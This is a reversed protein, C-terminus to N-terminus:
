TRKNEPTDTSRSIRNNDQIPYMSVLIGWTRYKSSHTSNTANDKYDSYEFHYGLAEFYARVNGAYSEVDINYIYNLDDCSLFLCTNDAFTIVNEQLAKDLAKRLTEPIGIEEAYKQQIKLAEQYAKSAHIM